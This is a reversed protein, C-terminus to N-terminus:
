VRSCGATFAFMLAMAALGLLLLAPLWIELNMEALEAIGGRVAKGTARHVNFPKGQRL